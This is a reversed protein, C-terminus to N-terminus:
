MNIDVEHTQV